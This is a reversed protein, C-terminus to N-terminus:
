HAWGYMVPNLGTCIGVTFISTLAWGIMLGLGIGKPWTRRQAILAAGGGFAVVGLTVAGAAFAANPSVANALGFLVLPGIVINIAVYSCIGVIM